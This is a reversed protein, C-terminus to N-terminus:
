RPSVAKYGTLPNENRQLKIIFCGLKSRDINFEKAVGRIRGGATVSTAARKLINLATDGMATKRKYIRPM